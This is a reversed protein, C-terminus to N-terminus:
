LNGNIAGIEMPEPGGTPRAQFSYQFNGGSNMNSKHWKRSSDQGAVRSLVFDAREVYM